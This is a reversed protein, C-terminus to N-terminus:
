AVAKTEIQVKMNYGLRNALITSCCREEMLVVDVVGLGSDRSLFIRYNDIGMHNARKIKQHNFLM